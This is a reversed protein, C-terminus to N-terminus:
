MQKLRIKGGYRSKSLLSKIKAITHSRTEKEEPSLEEESEVDMLREPISVKQPTSLQFCCIGCYVQTYRLYYLGSIQLTISVILKVKFALQIM